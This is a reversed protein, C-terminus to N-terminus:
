NSPAIDTNKIPKGSSISSKQAEVNLAAADAESDQQFKKSEHYAWEQRLLESKQYLVDMEEQSYHPVQSYDHKSM